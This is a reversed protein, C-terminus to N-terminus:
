TPSQYVTASPAAAQSPNAQASMGQESSLPLACATILWLCFIRYSRM